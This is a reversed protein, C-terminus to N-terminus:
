WTDEITPGPSASHFAERRSRAGSGGGANEQGYEIRKDQEDAGLEANFVKVLTQLSSDIVAPDNALTAMVWAPGTVSFGNLAFAAETGFAATLNELYARVSSRM